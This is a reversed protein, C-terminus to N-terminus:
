FMICLIKEVNNNGVCSCCEIFLDNLCNICNKSCEKNNLDCKCSETLLCKTVVSGCLAQNCAFVSTFTCFIISVMLFM